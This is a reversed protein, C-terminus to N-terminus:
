IFKRKSTQKLPPPPTKPLPAPSPSPSASPQQPPPPIELPTLDLVRCNLIHEANQHSKNLNGHVNGHILANACVRRSYCEKMIKQKEKCAKRKEKVRLHIDGEMLKDMTETCLKTTKIYNYIMSRAHPTAVPDEPFTTNKLYKGRCNYNKELNMSEIYQNSVDVVIQKLAVHNRAILANEFERKLELSLISSFLVHAMLLVHDNELTKFQQLETEKRKVKYQISMSFTNFSKMGRGFELTINELHGAIANEIHFVYDNLLANLEIIEGKLCVRKILSQQPLSLNHLAAMVTFCKHAAARTRYNHVLEAIYKDYEITPQAIESLPIFLNSKKM